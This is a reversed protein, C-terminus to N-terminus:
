PGMLADKIYKGVETPQIQLVLSFESNLLKEADRLFNEDCLHFKRGQALQEQKHHHLTSVMQLLQERDGSNILERYRQKRRNEDAIWHDEQIKASSLLAELEEKSIVHRLKALATPNESPVFFRAGPQDVPELVFYRIKKRDVQREELDIIQCVGHIGYVVRDGLQFM